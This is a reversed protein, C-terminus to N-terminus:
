LLRFCKAVSAGMLQPKFMWRTSSAFKTYLPGLHLGQLDPVCISSASFNLFVGVVRTSHARIPFPYVSEKFYFNVKESFFKFLHVGYVRGMVGNRM